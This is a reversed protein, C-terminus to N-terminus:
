NQIRYNIKKGPAADYLKESLVLMGDELGRVIVQDESEAVIQINIKKLTSDKEVVYVTNEGSLIKDSLRAADKIPLSPVRATCYMGQRARNDQTTIYVKVTQFKPDIVKNIRRITGKLEGRVDDSTLTVAQGVQFHRVEDPSAFAALEYVSTNTYEGLNQGIRVLTGPNINSVTVTGDFPAPITYKALTAEQSKVSYFQSYINRAAIFYKEQSTEAEPLDALPKELDFNKLYEEWRRTSNPFDIGLDPLLLTIQNLLGSKNALVQNRFVADDIKILPEDKKFVNGERFQRPTNLLVGSVEAYIEVKDFAYLHGSMDFTTIVDTNKVRTVLIPKPKEAPRKRIPEQQNSLVRSITFGVAIILITLLASVYKNM